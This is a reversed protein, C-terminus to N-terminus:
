LMVQRSRCGDNKLSRGICSKSRNSKLDSQRALKDIGVIDAWFKWRRSISIPPKYDVIQRDRVWIKIDSGDDESAGLDHAHGLIEIVWNPESIAMIFVRDFSFSESSNRVVSGHSFMEGQREIIDTIVSSVKPHKFVIEQRILGVEFTKDDWSRCFGRGKGYERFQRRKRVLSVVGYAVGVM